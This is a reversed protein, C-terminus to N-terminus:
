EMQLMVPAHRLTVSAEDMGGFFAGFEPRQMALAEADKAAQASTWLIHDTWLGAADVSLTRSSM